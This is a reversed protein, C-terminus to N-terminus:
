PVKLMVNANTVVGNNIVELFGDPKYTALFTEDDMLTFLVTSLMYRANTDILEDSYSIQYHIPVTLLNNQCRTNVLEARNNADIKLLSIHLIDTRNLGAPQTFSVQGSISQNEESELCTWMEGFTDYFMAAPAPAPRQVVGDKNGGSKKCGSLVAALTLLAPWIPARAILMM